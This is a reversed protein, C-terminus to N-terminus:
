IPDPDPLEGEEEPKPQTKVPAREGEPPPQEGRPPPVASGHRGPPNLDKAFQMAVADLLTTLEARFRQPEKAVRFPDVHPSGSEVQDARFARRWIEARGDLRFMRGYGQVYTGARGDESRMGYDEIVLEVVADAGLPLLLDYDPPNAPVEEVLYSQLAFAVRAQDVVNSWPLEQPLLSLTKARLGESVEFRSMGRALKVQLRRDAEKPDLRKLKPGYAGDDRFVMSKPGAGEEIRAVFAPRTVRDLEAGSLARHACSSAGIVVAVSALLTRM